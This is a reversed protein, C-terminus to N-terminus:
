VTKKAAINSTRKFTAHHPSYIKLSFSEFANKKISFTDFITPKPLKECFSATVNHSM